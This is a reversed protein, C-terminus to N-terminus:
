KDRKEPVPGTPAPVMLNLGKGDMNTWLTGPGSQYLRLILNPNLQEALTYRLFANPDNQFVEMKLQYLSSKATEKLKTVQTDAEGLAQKRQADLAAIRATYDAKVKEIEAGTRLDVNKVEQELGAVLLKTQAQVKALEQKILQQEREVDAESQAMAEKTKNTLQTEVALQKDRIPKLYQEPIDIRRIFASNVTVNKEKCVRMLEQTFDQQFKERKDGELFDQPGYDLGRDRGIARAQVNIVNKEVAQWNGYEAVLKPMDQPLVEWEVTCDMDITVGKSTFNIATNKGSESEKVFATQILGVEALVVEYEKTNLYYLGPQFVEPLIGKQDPQEAFRGKGDTGLLRRLVGVFGPKIEVANVLEVDFGYKNVRYSGPPLVHRQIGQEGEEALVRGAPLPRGGRATVLGVKGAPIVTNDALETTYLIPPVFHWGEGKVERQIGKHGDEALVQGPELATGQKAVIVLHKGPPVYHFFLNWTMVVFVFAVVTIVAWVMALRKWPDWAWNPLPYDHDHPDLSRPM